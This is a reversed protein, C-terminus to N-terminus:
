VEASALGVPRIQRIVRVIQDLCENIIQAKDSDLEVRKELIHQHWRQLFVVAKAKDGSLDRVQQGLIDKRYDVLLVRLLHLVGHDGTAAGVQRYPRANTAHRELEALTDGPSMVGSTRLIDGLDFFSLIFESLGWRYAIPDQSSANLREWLEQIDVQPLRFHQDLDLM